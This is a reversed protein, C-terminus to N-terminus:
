MRCGVEHRSRKPSARLPSEHVSVLGRLRWGTSGLWTRSARVPPDLGRRLAELHAARADRWGDFWAASSLPDVPGRADRVHKRFNALVYVIANRCERPTRLARGHWRDGWLPGTRRLDGNLRRAVRIVLGRMGRSLAEKDSGEVILHVHDPQVSFHVVRFAGKSAARISRRLSEFAAQARLYPAGRRARLTVHV